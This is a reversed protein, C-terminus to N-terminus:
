GNDEKQHRKNNRKELMKLYDALRNVRYYSPDPIRGGALKCLWSYSVDCTKAIEPWNGQHSDLQQISYKCLDKKM